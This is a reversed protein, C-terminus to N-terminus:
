VARDTLLNSRPSRRSLFETHVNHLRKTYSKHPQASEAPGKMREPREGRSCARLTLPRAM